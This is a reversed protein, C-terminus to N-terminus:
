RTVHIDATIEGTASVTTRNDAPNISIKYGSSYTVGSDKCNSNQPNKSGTAPDVPIDGIYKPVLDTCLNIEGVNSSINTLSSTVGAPVNGNNDAMYQHVANIIAGVDNRRKTDNAKKFQTAPNILVLVTGVLISLIAMVLLLEILTLGKELTKFQIKMKSIKSLM